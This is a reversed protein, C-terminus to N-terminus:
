ERGVFYFDCAYGYVNEREPTKMADDKLTYDHPLHTLHRILLVCLLCVWHQTNNNLMHLSYNIISLFKTEFAVDQSIHGRFSCSLKNSNSWLDLWEFLTDARCTAVKYHVCLTQFGDYNRNLDRSTNSCYFTRQRINLSWRHHNMPEGKYNSFVFSLLKISKNMRCIYVWRQSLKCRLNLACPSIFVDVHQMFVNWGDSSSNNGINM